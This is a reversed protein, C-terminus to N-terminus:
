QQLTILANNYNSTKNICIKSNQFIDLIELSQEFRCKKHFEQKTEITFEKSSHIKQLTIPFAMKQCNYPMPQLWQHNKYTNRSHSIQSQM